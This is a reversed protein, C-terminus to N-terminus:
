SRLAAVYTKVFHRPWTDAYTTWPLMFVRHPEFTCSIQTQWLGLVPQFLVIVHCSRLSLTFEVDVEVTKSNSLSVAYATSQLLLHNLRIQWNAGIHGGMVAYQRWMAFAIWSTSGDAWGLGCGLRCISQTVAGPPHPTHLGIYLWLTKYFSKNFYIFLIENSAM